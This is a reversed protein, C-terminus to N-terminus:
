GQKYEELESIADFLKKATVFPDDVNLMGSIKPFGIRKWEKTSARSTKEEVQKMKDLLDQHSTMEGAIKHIRAIDINDLVGKKIANESEPNTQPSKIYKHSFYIAWVKALDILERLGNRYESKEILNPAVTETTDEEWTNTTKDEPAIKKALIADIHKELQFVEDEEKGGISFIFLLFDYELDELKKMEDTNTRPESARALNKQQIAESFPNNGTIGEITKCIAQFNVDSTGCLRERLSDYPTQLALIKSQIDSEAMNVSEIPKPTDDTMADSLFSELTTPSPPEISEGPDSTDDPTPDFLVSTHTPWVPPVIPASSHENVWKSSPSPVSIPATFDIMNEKRAKINKIREIISTDEIFTNWVLVTGLVGIDHELSELSDHIHRVQTTTLVTHGNLMPVKIRASKDYPKDTRINFVTNEDKVKTSAKEFQEEGNNEWKLNCIEIVIDKINTEIPLKLTTTIESFMAKLRNIKYQAAAIHSSDKEIHNGYTDEFVISPIPNEEAASEEIEYAYTKKTHTSRTEAVSSWPTPSLSSSTDALKSSTLSTIPKSAWSDVETGGTTIPTPEDDPSPDPLKKKPTMREPDIGVNTKKSFMRNLINLRANGAWGGAAHKSILEIEKKLEYRPWYGLFEDDELNELQLLICDNESEPKNAYIGLNQEIKDKEWQILELFKKEKADAADQKATNKNKQDTEIAKEYVQSRKNKDRKKKIAYAALIGPLLITPAWMMFAAWGLVLIPTKRGLKKSKQIGAAAVAAIRGEKKSVKYLSALEKLQLYSLYDREHAWDILEQIYDATLTDDLNDEIVFADELKLFDEHTKQLKNVLSDRISGDQLDTAILMCTTIVDSADPALTSFDSATLEIVNNTDLYPCLDLIAEVSQTVRAAVRELKPAKKLNKLANKRTKKAIKNLAKTSPPTVKKEKKEVEEDLFAFPDSM